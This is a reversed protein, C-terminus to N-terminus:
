EVLSTDKNWKLGKYFTKLYDGANSPLMMSLGSFSKIPISIFKETANKYIVADNLAMEVATYEEDTCGSHRIIDLFDYYWHYNSRYYRQIAKEDIEAIEDRYKSFINRCLPALAAVNGCDVLCVTAYSNTERYYEYYERCIGELDAKGTRFLYSGMTKYNFGNSMIETPSAALRYCKDKLEYAVEIGSMLCADLLIFDLKMPIAEALDAIEMEVTHTKYSSAGFSLSSAFFDEEEGEMKDSGSYYGAPLYGTGHSSMVLGYSDAKYNDKLFTLVKNLTAADASDETPNLTLVTDKVVNGNRDHGVRFLVPSTTCVDHAKYTSCLHDFIFFMDDGDDLSPVKGACLEGIDEKLSYYLNNHGSSYMLIVQREPDHIVEYKECSPIIALCLATAM